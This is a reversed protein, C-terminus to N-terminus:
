GRRKNKSSDGAAPGASPKEEAEGSPEEPAKEESLFNLLKEEDNKACAIVLHDKPRLMVQGSPILFSYDRVIYAISAYKPFNIDMLRKNAIRHKSLVTAEIMSINGNDLTLSKILSDVSSENKITAALLYTSSIVSDIGLRKYLDVNSPNKVVCICKKVGFVKKALICSAYNDTDRESLSIFLDANQAGAEELIHNRWPNGVTVSIHKKKSLSAAIEPSSNILILKNRRTNFMDILYAAELNGNAIVIIM